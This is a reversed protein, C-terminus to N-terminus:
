YVCKTNCTGGLDFYNFFFIHFFTNEKHWNACCIEATKFHVVQDHALGFNIKNILKQKGLSTQKGLFNTVKSESM